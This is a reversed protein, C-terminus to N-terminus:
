PKIRAEAICDETNLYKFIDESIYRSIMIIILKRKTQRNALM